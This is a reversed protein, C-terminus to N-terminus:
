ATAYRTPWARETVSESSFLREHTSIKEKTSCPYKKRRVCPPEERTPRSKGGSRQQPLDEHRYRRSYAKGILVTKRSVWSTTSRAPPYRRRRPGQHNGPIVRRFPLQRTPSLPKRFESCCATKCHAPREGEEVVKENKKRSITSISSNMPSSIPITRDTRHSKGQSADTESRSRYAQRKDSRGNV